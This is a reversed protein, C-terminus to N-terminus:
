EWHRALQHDEICPEVNELLSGSFSVSNGDDVLDIVFSHCDGHGPARVKSKMFVCTAPYDDALRRDHDIYKQCICVLPPIIAMQLVGIDQNTCQLRICVRILKM